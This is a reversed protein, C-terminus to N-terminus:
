RWMRRTTTGGGYGAHPLCCLCLLLVVVVVYLYYLWRVKKPSKCTTAVMRRGGGYGAHPLCFSLWVSLCITYGVYRERTNNMAAAINEERGTTTTWRGRRGEAMAQMHSLDERGRRGTRSATTTNYVSGFASLSTLSLKYVSQLTCKCIPLLLTSGLPVRKLCMLCSLTSWPVRKQRNLILPPNSRAVRRVRVFPAHTCDRVRAREMAGAACARAQWM